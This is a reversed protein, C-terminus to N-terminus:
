FNSIVMITKNIFCGTTKRVMSVYQMPFYIEMGLIGVDKPWGGEMKHDVFISKEQRM